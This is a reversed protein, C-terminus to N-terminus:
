SAMRRKMYGTRARFRVSATVEAIFNAFPGIDMDISARDLASLYANRDEVRIVTWLIAVRPLYQM